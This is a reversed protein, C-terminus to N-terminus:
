PSPTSGAAAHSGLAPAPSNGRTSPPPHSTPPSPSRVGKASRAIAEALRILMRRTRELRARVIDIETNACHGLSSALELQFTLENASGLAYHLFPSLARSGQRGCGEAINSGISVAARRMQETLGFRESPPFDATLEYVAIALERAQAYVALKHVDQM